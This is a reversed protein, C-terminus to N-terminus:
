VDESMYNNLAIEDLERTEKAKQKDRELKLKRKHMIDYKKMESFINAMDEQLNHIQNELDILSNTIIKQREEIQMKYNHFTMGFTPDSSVLDQEAKLEEEMKKFYHNLQDKSDYCEKIRKRKEELDKSYFKVLTELSDM